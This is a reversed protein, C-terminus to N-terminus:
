YTYQSNSYEKKDWTGRGFRYHAGLMFTNGNGFRWLPEIVFKDKIPIYATFYQADDASSIVTGFKIYFDTGMGFGSGIAFDRPMDPLPSIFKNAYSYEAFLIDKPGFRISFQPIFATSNTGTNPIGSGQYVPKNRFHSVNGIHAGFNAGVWRSDLKVVPNIDFIAYDTTKSVIDDYSETQKGFSANIALETKNNMKGQKEVKTYSYGVGVLSFTQDFRRSYTNGSCSDPDTDFVIKNTADGTKAGFGISHYSYRIVSDKDVVTQSMLFLPIISLALSALRYKPISIHQYVRVFIYALAPLLAINVAFVETRYLYDKTFLLILITSLFVLAVRLIPSGFESAGIKNSNVIRAHLFLAIVAWLLILVYIWQLIKLGLFLDSFALTQAELKDFEVVFQIIAYSVLGVYCLSGPKLNIKKLKVFLFITAVYAMIQYAPLANHMIGSQYSVQIIGESHGYCCGGLLCGLKQLALSAFIAFAYYDYLAKDLHLVKRIFILALLGLVIGGLTMQGLVIDGTELPPFLYYDLFPILKCGIVFALSIFAVATLYSSNLKNNQKLQFIVVLFSLAFALVFFVRYYFASNSLSLEIVYEM